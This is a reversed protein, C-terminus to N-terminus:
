VMNISFSPAEVRNASEMTVSNQLIFNFSKIIHVLFFRIVKTIYYDFLLKPLYGTFDKIKAEVKDVPYQESCTLCQFPSDFSLPNIQLM